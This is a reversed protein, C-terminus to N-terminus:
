VNWGKHTEPKWLFICWSEHYKGDLKLCMLIRSLMCLIVELTRTKISRCWEHYRYADLNTIYVHLNTCKKCSSSFVAPNLSRPTPLGLPRFGSDHFRFWSVPIMWFDRSICCSAGSRTREAIIEVSLYKVRLFHLSYFPDSRTIRSIFVHVHHHCWWALATWM